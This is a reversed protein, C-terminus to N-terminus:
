KNSLVLNVYSFNISGVVDDSHIDLSSSLECPSLGPSYIQKVSFSLLCCYDMLRVRCISDDTNFNIKGDRSMGVMVCRQMRCASCNGRRRDTIECQGDKMCKYPEKRQM